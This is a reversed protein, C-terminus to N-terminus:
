AKAEKFRAAVADWNILEQVNDLPSDAVWACLCQRLLPNLRTYPLRERQCLDRHVSTAPEPHRRTCLTM